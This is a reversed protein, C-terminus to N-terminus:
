QKAMFLIVIDSSGMKLGLLMLSFLTFIISSVSFPAMFHQRGHIGKVKIALIFTDM